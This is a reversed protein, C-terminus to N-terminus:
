HLLTCCQLYFTMLSAIGNAERIGHDRVRMPREFLQSRANENASTFTVTISVGLPWVVTVRM